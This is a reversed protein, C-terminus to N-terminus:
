RAEPQKGCEPCVAGAALGARDYGCALALAVPTRESIGSLALRGRRCREPPLPAPPRALAFPLSPNILAVKSVCSWLLSVGGAM